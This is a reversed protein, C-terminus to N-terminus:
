PQPGAQWGGRSCELTDRETRRIDVGQVGKQDNTQMVSHMKVACVSERAKFTDDSRGKPSMFTSQDVLVPVTQLLYM